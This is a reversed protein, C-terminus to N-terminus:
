VVKDAFLITTATYFDYNRKLTLYQVVEAIVQLHARFGPNTAIYASKGAEWKDPVSLQIRTFYADIIYSARKITEEDTEGCMPGSLIKKDVIRGILGTRKLGKVGESITLNQGPEAPIDPLAFRRGLPSTKSTNLSRIIASALASLSTSPDSDGMRIDALLSVLLSRPVSKQKHNITIFLDAERHVDMKAFAIVFISQDLYTDDLHSYGYLRHQGDIIWASKYKKPLTLWGFRTNQDTNETNELLDFRPEDVFNVLLNTPFYGGDKIFQGIDRIRSSSIMRQYAPKGDPHNLAQHNIFAIKLLHRPKTVFAYFTDGGLTGRIAPLRIEALGPVKENQLFEGLIQYRGAPGMHKVFTEFYQLENETIIKIRADSARELDPESWIINHTIYIWIIKHRREGKHHAVISKRIYKQLAQTELIDKQLTRRGRSERSKCEVILATESDEAYVDIQKKGISGDDRIYHIHFNEGNMVPYGMSRFLMWARDELEKDHRKLRKMRISVKNNRKVEWGENKANEVDAHNVTKEEFRNRKVYSASRLSPEDEILPVLYSSLKDEVKIELKTDKERM